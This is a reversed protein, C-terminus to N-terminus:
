RRQCWGAGEQRTDLSIPVAGGVKAPIGDTKTSNVFQEVAPKDFTHLVEINSQTWAVERIGVASAMRPVSLLVLVVGSAAFRTIM